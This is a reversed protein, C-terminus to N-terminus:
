LQVNQPLIRSSLSTLTPITSCYNCHTHFQRLPTCHLSSNQTRTHSHLSLSSRAHLQFCCVLLARVTARRWKKSSLACATPSSLLV